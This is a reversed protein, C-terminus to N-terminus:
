SATSSVAFFFAPFGNNRSFLKTAFLVSFNEVVLGHSHEPDAKSYGNRSSLGNYMGLIYGWYVGFRLFLVAAFSENQLLGM